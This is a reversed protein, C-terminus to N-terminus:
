HLPAPARELSCRPLVTTAPMEYRPPVVLQRQALARAFRQAQLAAVRTFAAPLWRGLLAEAEVYGGHQLLSVTQLLWAEGEGLGSYRLSRVDLHWHLREALLHILTDFGEAGDAAIGAAHIGSRWDAPANAPDLIAAVRLRITMVVFIESTCLESLYTKSSYASSPMTM